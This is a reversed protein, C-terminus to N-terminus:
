RNQSLLEVVVRVHRARLVSPRRSSHEGSRVRYISLLRRPSVPRVTDELTEGMPICMVRGVGELRESGIQRILDPAGEERM